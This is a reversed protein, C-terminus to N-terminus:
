DNLGWLIGCCLGTLGLFVMFWKPNKSYYAAMSFVCLLLLTIAKFM